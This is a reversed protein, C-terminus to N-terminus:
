SAGGSAATRLLGLRIAEVSLHAPVEEVEDGFSAERSAEM